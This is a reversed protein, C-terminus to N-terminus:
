YYESISLSRCHFFAIAFGMIDNVYGFICNYSKRVVFHQIDYRMGVFFYIEGAYASIRKLFISTFTRQNRPERLESTKFQAIGLTKGGTRALRRRQKSCPLNPRM